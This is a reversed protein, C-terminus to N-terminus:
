SVVLETNVKKIVMEMNGIDKDVKELSNLIQEMTPQSNQQNLPSGAPTHPAPAEVVVPGNNM